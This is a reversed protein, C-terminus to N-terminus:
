SQVVFLRYVNYLSLQKLLLRPFLNLQVSPKKHMIPTNACTNIKRAQPMLNHALKNQSVTFGGLDTHVTFVQKFALDRNFIVTLSSKCIIGSGCIWSPLGCASHEQLANQIQCHGKFYLICGSQM